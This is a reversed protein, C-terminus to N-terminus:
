RASSKSAPKARDAGTKEKGRDIARDLRTEMEEFAKSIQSQVDSMIDRKLISIEASVDREPRGPEETTSQGCYIALAAVIEANMSRGHREALEAILNRMGDPLRLQFQDSGRGAKKSIAKKAM